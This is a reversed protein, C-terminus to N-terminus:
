CSVLVCSRVLLCFTNACHRVWSDWLFLWQFSFFYIPGSHKVLDLTLLPHWGPYMRQECTKHLDWKWKGTPSSLSSLTGVDAMIGSSSGQGLGLVAPQWSSSRLGSGVVCVLQLSSSLFKPEEMMEAASSRWASICYNTCFSGCGLVSHMRQVTYPCITWYSWLMETHFSYTEYSFHVM